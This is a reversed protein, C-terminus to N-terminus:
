EAVIAESRRRQSYIGSGRSQWRNLIQQILKHPTCHWLCTEAGHRQKFRSTFRDRLVYCQWPALSTAEEPKHSLRQAVVEERYQVADTEKYNPSTMKQRSNMLLWTPFSNRQEQGKM